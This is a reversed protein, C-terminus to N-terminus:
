EGVKLHEIITPENQYCVRKVHRDSLEMMEAIEEFTHGEVYHLKLIKRNRYAKFGIVTEDIAKIINDPTDNIKHKM